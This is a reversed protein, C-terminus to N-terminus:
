QPWYNNYPLCTLKEYLILAMNKDWNKFPQEYPTSSFNPTSYIQSGRNQIMSASTYCEANIKLQGM